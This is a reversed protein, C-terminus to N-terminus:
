SRPIECSISPFGLQGIVIPWKRGEQNVSWDPNEEEHNVSWDPHAMNKRRTSQGIMPVTETLKEALSMMITMM